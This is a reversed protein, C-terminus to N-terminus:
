LQCAIIKLLPLKYPKSIELRYYKKLHNIIKETNGKHVEMSIQKVRSALEKNIEPIIEYEAGECDMKLLDITKTKLVDQLCVTEVEQTTNYGNKFVVEKEKFFTHSGSSISNVFLKRHGECGVAKQYCKIRSGLKNLKINKKLLSFNNKEPEYAYVTAGLKAALISVGGLHAGIDVVTNFKKIAYYENTSNEELVMKDYVNRYYFKLNTSLELIKM